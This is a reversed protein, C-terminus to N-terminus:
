KGEAPIGLDEGAPPVYDGPVVEVAGRAKALCERGANVGVPYGPRVRVGDRGGFPEAALRPDVASAHGCAAPAVPAIQGRHDEPTWVWELRQHDVIAHGVAIRLVGGVVAGPAFAGGLKPLVVRLPPFDRGVKRGLLEVRRRENDVAPELM